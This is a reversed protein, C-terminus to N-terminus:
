TICTDNDYIIIYYLILFSDHNKKQNIYRSPFKSIIIIIIIIIKNNWNLAGSSASLQMYFLYQNLTCIVICCKIGVSDSIFYHYVSYM